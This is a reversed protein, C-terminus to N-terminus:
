LAAFRKLENLAADRIKHWIHPACAADRLKPDPSTNWHWVDAIRNAAQVLEEDRTM